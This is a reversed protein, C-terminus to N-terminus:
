FSFSIGLNLRDVDIEAIADSSGVKPIQQYEAKASWHEGFHFAGGVGWLLETSSESDSYGLSGALASWRETYENTGYYAGARAYVEWNANIPLIGVVSLAPGASSVSAAAWMPEVGAGADVLGEAEYNAAGLDIYSAEVALYRNFRYGATM